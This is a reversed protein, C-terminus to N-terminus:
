LSRINLEIRTLNEGQDSLIAGALGCKHIDEASYIVAVLPRYGNVAFFRFYIIHKVCAMRSNANDM